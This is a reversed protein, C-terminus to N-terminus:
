PLGTAGDTTNDATTLTFTRGALLTITNSGGALNAANIDAVLETVTGATLTTPVTRDELPELRLRLGRRPTAPRRVQPTMTLWRLSREYWENLWMTPRRAHAPRRYFSLAM